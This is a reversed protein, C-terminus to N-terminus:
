SGIDKRYDMYSFFIENLDSYARERAEELTEGTNMFTLVRGGRSRVFREGRSGEHLDTGNHYVTGDVHKGMGEEGIREKRRGKLFVPQKSLYDGPYGEYAPDPKGDKWPRGSVACVGVCYRDSWDIDINELGRSEAASYIGYLDTELRPLRAQAEPDGDRVNIEMVRPEKEGDEEVIMLVFHLVGRYDQDLNEVVPRAIREMIKQKMQKSIEQPSYAGMGGTNPNIGGFQREVLPHDDREFRRKYDRATGFPKVNEGDTVAFFSVEKGHLREEIELREGAGDFKENFEEGSIRDIAKLTEELSGCVFAGKGAAIGDAKPVLDSDPNEEYFKRAWEKAKEADDFNRYDPVPVGISDMYDKADCKSTELFAAEKTPGVIPIDTEERFRNVIGASLWGEPGPVVLDVDLEEAKEIIDEIREEKTGEPLPVKEGGYEHVGANGPTVYIQNVEDSKSFAHAMANGRGGGDVVMVKTM